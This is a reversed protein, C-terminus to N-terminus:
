RERRLRLANMVVSISSASMAASAVVPTLLLGTFPYLVGAAIPISVLNYVFAFFLNQRINRMVERSLQVAKVLSALDGKVLAIDASDIAIDSGSGMAVGVDAASLAPADNIGDGVMIVVDGKERFQKIFDHKDAPLVGAHIEDIELIRGIHRATKEADGTLMVVRLGFARLADMAPPTSDRIPDSLVLIGAAEQDMAVHIVTKGQGEYDDAMREFRALGEIGNDELWARKGIRVHRGKVTGSIGEGAHATFDEAEFPTLGSSRAEEVVAQALPHESHTEVAATIRLLENEGGDRAPICATVAPRGLTLTGTKDLVVTDAHLLTELAAAEKILIGHRAGRGMGVVISMPTALGLACPCTIMIVTVANILAYLLRPEPGVAYWVAFTVAAILMVVPVIYGTVRDAVRQIPARSERAHEVLRIIRALLTDSGVKVAEMVFSGDINRIGAAVDDDKSRNVPLSEGTLMSEDLTSRGELIRGDVPVTDGPRVRLHDGVRIEDVPVEHEEGNELRRATRPSLEALKRIAAGTRHQAAHEIWRGALVLVTIMAAAEFYVPVGGHRHFSAPFMDPVFLAALSYLYTAAVGLLILSFMNLKRRIFSVVGKRLLPWGCWLVVPTTLMCQLPVSWAADFLDHPIGPIHGAMALIMVPVTLLAGAIVRAKVKPIM